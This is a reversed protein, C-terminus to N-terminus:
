SRLNRQPSGPLLPRYAHPLFHLGGCSRGPSRKGSGTRGQSYAKHSTGASLLRDVLDKDQNDQKEGEEEPQPIEGGAGRLDALKGM